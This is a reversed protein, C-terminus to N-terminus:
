IVLDSLLDFSFKSVGKKHTDLLSFLVQSNFERFAYDDTTALENIIILLEGIKIKYKYEIIIISYAYACLSQRYVM